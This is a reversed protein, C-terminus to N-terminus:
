KKTTKAVAPKTATKNKASAKKKVTLRKASLRSNGYSSAFTKGRRTKRDGKGMNINRINLFKIRRQLLRRDM